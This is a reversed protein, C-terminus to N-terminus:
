PLFLHKNSVIGEQQATKGKPSLVPLEIKIKKNQGRIFNHSALYIKFVLRCLLFASSGM